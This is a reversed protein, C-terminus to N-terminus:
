LGVLDQSQRLCPPAAGAKTHGTLSRGAFSRASSACWLRQATTPGGPRGARGRSLGEMLLTAASNTALMCAVSGEVTGVM